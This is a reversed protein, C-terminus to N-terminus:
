IQKAVYNSVIGSAIGSAFGSVFGSAFGQFLGWLMGRIWVDRTAWTIEPCFDKSPNVYPKPNVSLSWCIGRLGVLLRDLLSVADALNM